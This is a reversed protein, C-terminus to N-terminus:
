TLQEPILDSQNRWAIAQAVTICERAVAEMHYTGISPNLMKLYNWVGTEGGLNVALLEYVGNDSKDLTEAGLKNVLQEVGVKRVFERRIEVNSLKAFELPDLDEAKSTALWDPVRVGNLAFVKTSDTYTIAAGGDKHLDKGKIHIQEPRDTVVCFKNLPWILGLEKMVLLNNLEETIGEVKLEDRCYTAWAFWGSFFSGDLYPWVFGTEKLEKDLRKKDIVEPTWKDIKMEELIAAQVVKIWGDKPGTAMILVPNPDRKLLKFLWNVFTEAVKPDSKGCALGIKTWREVYQPIAAEQEPTLKTIM